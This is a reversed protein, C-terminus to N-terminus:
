PIAPVAPNKSASPKRGPRRNAVVAATVSITLPTNIASPRNPGTAPANITDTIITAAMLTCQGCPTNAEVLPM